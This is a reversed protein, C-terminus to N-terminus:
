EIETNGRILAEAVAIDEPRDVGHSNQDTLAVHIPIGNEILRLQELKEITELKAPPMSVFTRLASLRFAYLGVHGYYASRANGRPFPIGARSFYLAKGDPRFVVKVVDSSRAEDDSIKRALTTVQVRKDESQFPSLLEHIMNPTMAPEDGQINVIISDEPVQLATAAEFVRDTGSSHDSRTMVAPIQFRDAAEVIRNDDTALFVSELATCRAARRYVHWFMPKGLIEALPKGPFRSSEYRAPIIGYCKM